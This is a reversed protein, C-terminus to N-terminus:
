RFPPHEEELGEPDQHIMVEAGAFAKQIEAEVQDAIVHSKKLPMNGDMELHLQIFVDSGSRRTRLDHLSAVAEHTKAIARIRARDEEPLERDMLMDLADGVIRWAGYLLYAAIGAGTLPDLYPFDLIPTLVLSGIVALNILLDGSYHLADASIAVSQSRRAVYKQYLVLALTLVISFVMVAVGLETAALPVPNFLRTGAQFIVIIASGAVFAAQAM